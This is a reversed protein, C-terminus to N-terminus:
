SLPPYDPVNLEYLMRKRNVNSKCGPDVQGDSLCEETRLGPTDNKYTPGKFSLVDPTAHSGDRLSKREDWMMM